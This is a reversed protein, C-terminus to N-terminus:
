EKYEAAFKKGKEINKKLEPVATKLLSIEYENLKGVGLNKEVGNPGLLIPTSFFECESVNSQVFTCEVIGKCGGMAQLLSNVFRVGAYAMSLTASGAGAKAEVVETGANQIRKTLQEREEPPFSVQPTCQSIVPIISVGSHGCIVPCNVKRVDLGKAQAIFTNSRIIDLTTVGFLRRPNYVGMKKMLEAAIPVTSNVPNTVVCIMAEPCYKACALTLSAVVSANFKFLDDRTMGPKRPVGAPIVVVNAGSLANPLESPDKHATVVCPTEIHSLDAAVGPCHAIDYLALEKVLPNQKLLLATPQGIGGSAGLLAVKNPARGSTSFCRATKTAHGVACVARRLAHM